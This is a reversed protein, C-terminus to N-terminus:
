VITEIAVITGIAGITGIVVLTVIAVSTVVIGIVMGIVMTEFHPIQLLSVNFNLINYKCNEKTM